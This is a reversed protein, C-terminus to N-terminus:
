KPLNKLYSEIFTIYETLNKKQRLVALNDPSIVIFRYKDKALWPIIDKGSEREVEYQYAIADIINQFPGFRIINMGPQLLLTDLPIDQNYHLDQNYRNFANKAESSYVSAVQTMILLVLHPASPDFLYNDSHLGKIPANVLLNSRGLRITGLHTVPSQLLPIFTNALPRHLDPPGPPVPPPPVAKAVQTATDVSISDEKDREVHLNTLYSEIQKRRSVIDRLRTAKPTLPDKPFQTIEQGLIRTATSDEREHVYYVAEIYMLQPTWYHKGYLSDAEKKQTIAQAYNGSIFQDYIQKYKDTAAEAISDKREAMAPASLLGEMKGSPYRKHLLDKYYSAKVEDGLQHWCFYLDFLTNETQYSPFRRYGEELVLAAAKYDGVENKYLNGLQYLNSAITDNSVKVAKETLPLGALLGKFTLVPAKGNKRASDAGEEPTARSLGSLANIANQRRWNDVNPRTGWRAEFDQAGQSLTANNYFYWEGNGTTQAAFLDGGNLSDKLLGAASGMGNGVDKLGQARLLKRLLDKIYITREAEPMAAVRQLSDEKEVKLISVLVKDYLAKDSTLEKKRDALSPDILKLSDYAMAVMKYDSRDRGLDAMLLYAQNHIDIPGVSRVSQHLFHLAATTDPEQLALRATALYLINAFPAFRDKRALKLLAAITKPLEDKSTGETLLARYLRAYIDIRPDTSHEIAKDYWGVAAGPHKCLESLQALLYEWRAQEPLDDAAPLARQLYVITSDYMEQRYFWFAQQEDLEPILRGPLIPDTRLLSILGSAQPYKGQETYSRVQWVLGENRSPLRNFAEHLISHNEPNVISIQGKQSQERTGIAIHYDGKEKVYFHYNLFELIRDASDFKMELLYAKGILLYLNDIWGNRLDHLVIGATCKYIVSDLDLTDKRTAPLAYNYFSILTTLDDQHSSRANALAQLLKQNANFYYNYHTVTGQVFSRFDTWKTTNSKESGLVKNEFKPPKQLDLEYGAQARVVVPTALLTLYWIGVALRLRKRLIRNKLLFAM